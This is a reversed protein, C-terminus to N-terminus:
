QILVFLFDHGFPNIAIERTKDYSKTHEPVCYYILTISHILLQQM